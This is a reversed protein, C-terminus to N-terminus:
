AEAAATTTTHSKQSLLKMAGIFDISSFAIFNLADMFFTIDMFAMAVSYNVVGSVLKLFTFFLV